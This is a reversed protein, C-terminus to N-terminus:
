LGAEQKNMVAFRCSEDLESRLLSADRVDLTFATKLNSKLVPRGACCDPYLRAAPM